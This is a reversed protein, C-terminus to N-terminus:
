PPRVPSTLIVLNVRAAVAIPTHAVAPSTAHPLEDVVADGDDLAEAAGELLTAVEAVGPVCDSVGEASASVTASRGDPPGDSVCILSPSIFLVAFVSWRPNALVPLVYRM